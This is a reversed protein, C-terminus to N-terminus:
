LPARESPLDTAQQGSVVNGVDASQTDLLPAETTVDVTQQSSGIQLQFDVQKRDQVNLVVGARVDKKFGAAEVSVSYTGVRLYPFSYLGDGGAFATQTENTAANKVTVKAKAVVAGTPDKITGVISATDIQASSIASVALLVLTGITFSRVGGGSLQQM